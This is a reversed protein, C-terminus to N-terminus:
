VNKRLPITHKSYQRSNPSKKTKFLSKMKKLNKKKKIESYKYCINAIAEEIKNPPQTTKAQKKNKFLGVFRM